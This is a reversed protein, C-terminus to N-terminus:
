QREEQQTQQYQIIGFITMEHVYSWTKGAADAATDGENLAYGTCDFVGDVTFAEHADELCRQWQQFTEVLLSFVSLFSEGNYDADARMTASVSVSIQCEPTTATMYSRPRAKVFVVGDAGSEELGKVSGPTSQLLGAVQIDLGEDAFLGAFKEVLRKEITEEPTM